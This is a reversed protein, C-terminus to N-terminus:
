YAIKGMRREQLGVTSMGPGNQVSLTSAGRLPTSLSLTLLKDPNQFRFFPQQWNLVRRQLCGLPTLAILAAPKRFTCSVQPLTWMDYPKCTFLTILLRPSQPMSLSIRAEDGDDSEPDSPLDEDLDDEDKTIKGVRNAGTLMSSYTSAPDDVVLLEHASRLFRLLLIQNLRVNRQEDKEGQGVHPFNFVIKDFRSSSNSNRKKLAKCAQLKQADVGFLIQLGSAKCTMLNDDLHKYKARATAESDYCTAVSRCASKPFRKSWAAAFSLDGEGVFLVSEGDVYPQYPRKSARPEDVARGKGKDVKSQKSKPKEYEAQKKAAAAARNREYTRQKENALAKKLSRRKAM